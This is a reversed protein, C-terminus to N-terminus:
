VRHVSRPCHNSRVPRRRPVAAHGRSLLIESVGNILFVWTAWLYFFVSDSTAQPQAISPHDVPKWDGKSAEVGFRVEESFMGAFKFVHELHKGFTKLDAPINESSTLVLSSSCVKM